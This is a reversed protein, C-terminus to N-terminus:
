NKWSWTNETGGVFDLILYKGTHRGGGGGLFFIYIHTRWKVCGQVLNRLMYGTDETDHAKTV